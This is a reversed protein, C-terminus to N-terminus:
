GAERELRKLAEPWDRAGAIGSALLNTFNVHGRPHGGEGALQYLARARQLDQPVLGGRWCMEGHLFAAEPDGASSLQQILAVAETDRGARALAKADAITAM